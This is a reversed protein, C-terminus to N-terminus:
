DTWPEKQLTLTCSWMRLNGRLPGKENAVIKITM